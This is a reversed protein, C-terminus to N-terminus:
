FLEIKPASEGGASTAERGQTRLHTQRQSNMVYGAYIEELHESLPTIVFDPDQAKKLREGLLDAHSDLRRLADIVQEIQQRTVDQFQVSALAEMFMSALQQSTDSMTTLVDAEHQTVARYSDGLEELQRSFTKLADRESASTEHSLKDAFQSEISAAVDHIGQNIKNVAKDTEGSLNRVEDAVVAFGRGAEGARAAEISANLALLNTQKSVAKILQILSGLSKADRVVQTIRKQDNVTEDIREQIYTDFTQILARNQEIKQESRALLEGSETSTLDVFQNMKTVVEDIQALRGSIDFAAKETEAVIMELQGRIVDNFSRMQRLEREVEAGVKVLNNREASMAEFDDSACFLSESFVLRAVGWFGLFATTVLAVSGVADGLPHSVGIAPLLEKHFVPHFFYVSLFACVSVVGYAALLKALLHSDPRPM